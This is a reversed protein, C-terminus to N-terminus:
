KSCTSSLNSFWSKWIYCIPLNHLIPCPIGLTFGAHKVDINISMSLYRSIVIQSEWFFLYILTDFVHTSLYTFLYIYIYIYVYTHVYEYRMYEDWTNMDYIMDHVYNHVYMIDHMCSCIYIYIIIIMIIINHRLYYIYIYIYIHSYISLYRCGKRTNMSWRLGPELDLARHELSKAADLSCSSRGQIRCAWSLTDLNHMPYIQRWPRQHCGRCRKVDRSVTATLHSQIKYFQKIAWFHM